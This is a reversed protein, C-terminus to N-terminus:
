LSFFLHTSIYTMIIFFMTTPMVMLGLFLLFRLNLFFHPKLKIEAGNKKKEWKKKKCQKKKM